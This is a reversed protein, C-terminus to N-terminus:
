EFLREIYDFSQENGGSNCFDRFFLYKVSYFYLSFYISLGELLYCM